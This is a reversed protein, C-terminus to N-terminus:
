YATMLGEICYALIGELHGEIMRAVNAIPEFPEETQRRM